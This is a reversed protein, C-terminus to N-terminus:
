IFVNFLRNWSIGKFYRSKWLIDSLDLLADCWQELGQNQYMDPSAIEHVDGSISYLPPIVSESNDYVMITASSLSIEANFIVLGTRWIGHFEQLCVWWVTIPLCEWLRLTWHWDHNLCCQLSLSFTFTVSPRQCQLVRLKSAYRISPTNM